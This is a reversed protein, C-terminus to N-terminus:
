LEDVVVEMMTPITAPSKSSVLDAVKSAKAKMENLVYKM